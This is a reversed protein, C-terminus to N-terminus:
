KNVTLHFCGQKIEYKIYCQGQKRFDRLVESLIWKLTDSRVNRKAEGEPDEVTLYRNYCIDVTTGYLHCSNETANVNHRRLRKVDERTRMVSTVIFKHLPIGKAYLSDYFAKGMDELMVAASPVLYPISRTLPDVHYFPNSEIYVLENMRQEVEKRNMVPSVGYRMAASIQVDNNDPFSEHYSRVGFIPHHHSKTEKTPIEKKEQKVPKNNDTNPIFLRIIALVAVTLCFLRIYNKKSIKINM